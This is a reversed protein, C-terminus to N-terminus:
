VHRKGRLHDIEHLHVLPDYGAVYAVADQDDAIVLLPRSINISPAQWPLGPGLPMTASISSFPLATLLMERNMPLAVFLIASYEASIQARSSLRIRPAFTM